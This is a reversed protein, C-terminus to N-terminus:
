IMRRGLFGSGMDFNLKEGTISIWEDPEPFHELIQPDM